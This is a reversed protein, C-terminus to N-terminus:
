KCEHHKTYPSVIMEAAEFEDEDQFAGPDIALIIKRALFYWLVSGFLGFALVTALNKYINNGYRESVNTGIIIMGLMVAPILIATMIALRVDLQHEKMEDEFENLHDIM